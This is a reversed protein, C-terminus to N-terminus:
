LKGSEEKVWRLPRGKEYILTFRGFFEPPLIPKLMMAAGLVLEATTPMTETASDKDM